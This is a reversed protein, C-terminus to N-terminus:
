VIRKRQMQLLAQGVQAMLGALEGRRLFRAAADQGQRNEGFDGHLLLAADDAAAGGEHAMAAAHRRSRSVLGSRSRPSTDGREREPSTNVERGGSRVIRGGM